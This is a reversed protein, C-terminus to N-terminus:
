PYRTGPQEELFRVASAEMQVLAAARWHAACSSEPQLLAALGALLEQTAAAMLVAEAGGSGGSTGDSTGAAM